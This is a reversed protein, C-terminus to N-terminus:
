LGLSEAIKEVEKMLKTDRSMTERPASYQEIRDVLDKGQPSSVKVKAIEILKVYQDSCLTFQLKSNIARRRFGLVSILSQKSNMLVLLREYVTDANWAIGNGNTLYVEVLCEIYRVEVQTPIEGKAGVLAKLRRAPSPENYFNNFGRHADLLDEIVSEIEAARIGEPIYSLGEVVELFERAWQQKAIDNVATYQGLRVGFQARTPNSVYPWLLPALLKINDRAQPLSEENTYIGFFGSMLNNCQDGTLDVFSAGIVKADDAELTNSRINKLLSGIHVITSTEPLTIVERICTELWGILQLGTIENQNPHAASAWNRMYRILDLHRYGLESILELETAGKILESDDLKRLDNESKLKKRKDPNRVALDFFYDLDYRAVRKRLQIITEDWLYNLAADFLGSATAAIFKSIYVSNQKVELSLLSLVDGVNNFVRIREAIPVLINQTPLDHEEIFQILGTEFTQLDTGHRNVSVDNGSTVISSRSVQNETDKSNGAM